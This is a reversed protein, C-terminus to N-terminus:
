NSASPSAGRAPRKTERVSAPPTTTESVEQGRHALDALTIKGYATKSLEELNELTTTVAADGKQRVREPLPDAIKGNRIAAVVDALTIQEPDRAPLFGRESDILIDNVELCDLFQQVMQIPIDLMDRIRLVTPGPRGAIFDRVAQVCISVGIWERYSQTVDQYARQRRHADVNQWACAFEAGLLVVLWIVYIWILFIPISGLTGYIRSYNIARTAYLTYARKALEFLVGGVIGGVIGSSWYVKTNPIMVYLVTCAACSALLPLGISRVFALQTQEALPLSSFETIVATVFTTLSIGLFLPGLVVIALYYVLRDLLRRPKKVEWIKNFSGEISDLMFFVTVFLAAIGISAVAGSHVNDIFRDLAAIVTDSAGAALYRYILSRLRGYAEKLTPFAAFLSFAVALLPVMSLLTTYALATARLMCEDAWFSRWALVAVRVVRLIRRWVASGQLPHNAEWLNARFLQGIRSM